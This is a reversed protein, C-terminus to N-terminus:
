ALSAVLAVLRAVVLDALYHLAGRLLTPGLWSLFASM